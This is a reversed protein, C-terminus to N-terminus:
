DRSRIKVLKDKYIAEIWNDALVFAIDGEDAVVEIKLGRYSELKLLYMAQTKYSYGACLDLYNRSSLLLRKPKFGEKILDNIQEEIRYELRQFDHKNVFVDLYEFLLKDTPIESLDAVVRSELDCKYVRYHM